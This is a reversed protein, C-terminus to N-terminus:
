PGFVLIKQNAIVVYVKGNAVGAATFKVWTPHFASAEHAIRSIEGAATKAAPSV